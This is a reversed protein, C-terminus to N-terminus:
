SEIALEFESVNPESVLLEAKHKETHRIDNVGHANLLQSFDTRRRSLVTHCDAVL